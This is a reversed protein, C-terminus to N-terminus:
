EESMRRLGNALEEPKLNRNTILKPPKLPSFSFAGLDDSQAASPDLNAKLMDNLAEQEDPTSADFQTGIGSEPYAEGESVADPKPVGLDLIMKVIFRFAFVVLFVIAFSYFSRVLTTLFVNKSFSSVFTLLFAAAGITLNWRITGLM